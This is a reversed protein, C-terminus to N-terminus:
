ERLWMALTVLRCDADLHSVDRRAFCKSAPEVRWNWHSYIGPKYRAQWTARDIFAALEDCERKSLGSEDGNILAPLYHEAVYFSIPIYKAM